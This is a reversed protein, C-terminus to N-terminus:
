RQGVLVAAYTPTTKSLFCIRVCKAVNQASRPNQCFKPKRIYTMLNNTWAQLILADSLKKVQLFEVQSKLDPIKKLLKGLNINKNKRFRPM